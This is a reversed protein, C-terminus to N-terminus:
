SLKWFGFLREVFDLCLLNVFFVLFFLSLWGKEAHLAWGFDNFCFGFVQGFVGEGSFWSLLWTLREFSCMYWFFSEIFWIKSVFVIYYGCFDDFIM